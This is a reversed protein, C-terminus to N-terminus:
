HNKENDVCFPCVLNQLRFKKKKIQFSKNCEQCTLEIYPGEFLDYDLGKERLLENEICKKEEMESRYIKIQHTLIIYSIIGCVIGIPFGLLGVSDSFYLLLLGSLIFFICGLGLLIGLDLLLSEFFGIEFLWKIRLPYSIIWILYLIIMAGVFIEHVEFLENM